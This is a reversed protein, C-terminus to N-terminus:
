STDSDTSGRLRDPLFCEDSYYYPKRPQPKNPDRPFPTGPTELWIVEGNPDGSIRWGAEHILRHHKPCVTILNDLDTPGGQAWHVLHHFHIWRNRECGPFRCGNDRNRLKRGLWPPIRRSIRGIGIVNQNSDELSVQWRSDCVLRRATEAVILPGDEVTGHGTNLALTEANVHIVATARDPDSDDGLGQSALQLLADACRAEFPEYADDVTQMSEAIRTLAKVLIAGDADVMRGHFDVIPHKEDFTWSFFRDHHVNQVDELKVEKALKRLQTVSMAPTDEALDDDTTPTAFRTVTRVQDWSMRGAAFAARIAPLEQIAHAVRTWESATHHSLGYRAVLWGPMSAAGDYTWAENRDMQAVEDLMELHAACRVAQWRDMAGYRDTDFFPATGM